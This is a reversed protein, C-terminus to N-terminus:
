FCFYVEFARTQNDLKENLEVKKREEEDIDKKLKEIDTVTSANIKKTTELEEKLKKLENDKEDKTVKLKSLEIGMNKLESEMQYNSQTMNMVMKM